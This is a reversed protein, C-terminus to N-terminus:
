TWELELNGTEQMVWRWGRELLGTALNVDDVYKRMLYVKIEAKALTNLFRREWSDMVIRAVVGTLRLGIAGGRM